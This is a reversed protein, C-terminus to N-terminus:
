CVTPMVQIVFSYQQTHLVLSRIISLLDTRFMYLEKDFCVQSVTCITPKWYLFVDRHVTRQIDFHKLNSFTVVRIIHRYVFEFLCINGKLQGFCGLGRVVYLCLMEYRINNFVHSRFVSKTLICFYKLKVYRGKSLLVVCSLFRRTSNKIEQV